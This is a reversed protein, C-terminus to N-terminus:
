PVVRYGAARAVAILTALPGTIEYQEGDLDIGVTRCDASPVVAAIGHRRLDCGVDLPTLRWDGLCTEGTAPRVTLRQRTVGRRTREVLTWDGGRRVIRAM